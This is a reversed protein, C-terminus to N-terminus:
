RSLLDALTTASPPRRTPEKELAALIAREITEPIDPRLQRPPVPAESLHAFGVAIANDGSFPPRGTYLHYALAGLAYVDSTRGVDKGRIQEPSMYHPTGLLMGSATLGDAATAKALGFDILKVANREGVLVNHPKLDRHIVGAEHAAALGACIQMLIDKCDGLPMLGRAAIVDALTRGPFYEMSLYLIGARAEGLDHIRAKTTRIPM